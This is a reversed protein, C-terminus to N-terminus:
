RCKVVVLTRDDSVPMGVTFSKLERLISQILQEATKARASLALDIRDSGFVDGDANVAELVGDTFFLTYDGPGFRMTQEPYTEDPKIGLPLRQARNLLVVGGDGRLLRPPNHGASAYTLEGATTDFVGYFVTMFHGTQRTYQHTLQANMHTLLEGPSAPTELRAHAISHAIAM